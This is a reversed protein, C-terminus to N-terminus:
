GAAKKVLAVIKAEETPTVKTVAFAVPWITGDDLKAVDNFGFTAYRTKFKQAPQFFCLMKGDKAFGPMGYWLKPTLQPSSAKVARHIREAMVRDSPSMEAIKALVEKEPDVDGSRAAKLEKARQVMADREEETFVKSAKPKTPMTELEGIRNSRVARM